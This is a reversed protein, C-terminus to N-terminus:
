GQLYAYVNNSFIDQTPSAVGEALGIRRQKIIKILEKRIFNSAKIAKNSPTGPLDIPISIIGAAILLFPDNFKAVHNEDEVSMHLRCALM